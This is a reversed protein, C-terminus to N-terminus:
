QVSVAFVCDKSKVFAIYEWDSVDKIIISDNFQFPYNVDIINKFSDIIVSFHFVIKGGFNHLLITCLDDRGNQIFTAFGYIVGRFFFILSRLTFIQKVGLM